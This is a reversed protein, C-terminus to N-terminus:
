RTKCLLSSLNRSLHPSSCFSFSQSSFSSRMRKISHQSASLGREAVDNYKSEFTGSRIWLLSFYSFHAPCISSSVQIDSNFMEYLKQWLIKKKLFFAIKQRICLNWVCPVCKLCLQNWFNSVELENKTTTKNKNQMGISLDLYSINTFKFLAM